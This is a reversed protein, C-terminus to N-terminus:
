NNIYLTQKIFKLHKKINKKFFFKTPNEEQIFELVGISKKSTDDSSWSELKASFPNANGPVQWRLDDRM